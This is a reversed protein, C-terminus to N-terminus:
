VKDDEDLEINLLFDAVADEGLEPHEEEKEAVPQAEGTLAESSDPPVTAPKRAPEVAKAAGPAPLHVTAEDDLPIVEAGSSPEPVAVAQVEATDSAKKAAGAVDSREIRFTVNGVTLTDGPELTQTGEVRNGNIFTGNSSGLDQVVLKGDQESLECHRRSVQSSKVQLQCGDQRGVVTTGAGLRHASVKSRGRMVVLLFGM